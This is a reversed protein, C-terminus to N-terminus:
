VKKPPRSSCSLYMGTEFYSHPIRCGEPSYGPRLFIRRRFFFIDKSAKNSNRNRKLMCKSCFSHTPKPFVSRSSVKKKREKQKNNEKNLGLIPENGRLQPM